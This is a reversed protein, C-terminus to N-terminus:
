HEVWLWLILASKKGQGRGEVGDVFLVSFVGFLWCNVVPCLSCSWTELLWKLTRLDTISTSSLPEFSLGSLGFLVLGSFFSAFGPGSEMVTLWFSPFLIAAPAWLIAGLPTLLWREVVRWCLVSFRYDIGTTGSGPLALHDFSYVTEFYLFHTIPSM